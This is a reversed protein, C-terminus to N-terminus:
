IQILNRIGLRRAKRQLLQDFTAFSRTASTSALHMADAFDVGRRYWDMARSVAAEDEMAVNPIELLNKLATLISPASVSYASRLVWELELLVTKLVVVREQRSLFKTARAAQAHDDGTIVRVLVNTDVVVM